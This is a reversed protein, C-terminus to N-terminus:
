YTYVDIARLFPLGLEPVKPPHSEVIQHTLTKIRTADWFPVHHEAKATPEDM